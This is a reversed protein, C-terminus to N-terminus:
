FYNINEKNIVEVSFPLVGSQLIIGLIKAEELNAFGSIQISNTSFKNRIFSVSFVSSDIVSAIRRGINLKTFREWSTKSKNSLELIITPLLTQEEKKSVSCNIDQNSLESKNKIFYLTYIGKDEFYTIPKTSFLFGENYGVINKIDERKLIDRVKIIDDEKVYADSTEANPNIRVISFFPHEKAFEEKTMQNKNVFSKLHNSGALVSDIKEMIGIVSEREKIVQLAFLGRIQFLSNLSTKDFQFPIDIILSHDDKEKIYFDKIDYLEIRSELIRTIKEMSEKNIATGKINLTYRSYNKNKNACSAISIFIVLLIFGYVYSKKIIIQKEM